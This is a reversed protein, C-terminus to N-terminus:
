GKFEFQILWCWPNTEAPTNPLCQAWYTQFEVKTAYGCAQWDHPGLDAFRAIDLHKVRGTGFRALKQPPLEQLLEFANGQQIPAIDRGILGIRFALRVTSMLAPTDEISLGVAALEQHDIVPQPDFPVIVLRVSGSQVKASIEPSFAMKKLSFDTNGDNARALAADNM